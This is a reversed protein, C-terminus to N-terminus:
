EDFFGVNNNSSSLLRLAIQPYRVSIQPFRKTPRPSYAHHSKVIDQQQVLLGKSVITLTTLLKKGIAAFSLSVPNENSSAIM